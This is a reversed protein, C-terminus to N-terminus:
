ITRKENSLNYQIEYNFLVADRNQLRTSRSTSTINIPHYFGGIEVFAARTDYLGEVMAAEDNELWRTNAVYEEQFSKRYNITGNNIVKANDARQTTASGASSVVVPTSQYTRPTLEASRSHRQNATFYDWGGKNNYWCFRTESQNRERYFDVNITKVVNSGNNLAVTYSTNNVNNFATVWASSTGLTIIQNPSIGIHKLAGSANTLGIIETTSGATVTISTIQGLYSITLSEDRHVLHHDLDTSLLGSITEHLEIGVERVGKIYSKTSTATVSTLNIMGTSALFQERFDIRIDQKAGTSLVNTEGLADKDFTLLDDIIRSLQFVGFGSPDQAQTLRTVMETGVYIDAIYNFESQTKQDSDVVYIIDSISYSPSNPQQIITIAM